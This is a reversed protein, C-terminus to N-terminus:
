DNILVEAEVANAQSLKAETGATMIDYYEHQRMCNMMKVTDSFCKSLDEDDKMGQICEDWKLFETKCPGGKMFRCVPCESTDKASNSGDSLSPTQANRSIELEPGEKSRVSMNKETTATSGSDAITKIQHRDFNCNGEADVYTSSCIYGDIVLQDSPAFGTFQYDQAPHRVDVVREDALRGKLMNAFSNTRGTVIKNTCLRTPLDMAKRDYIIGVRTHNDKDADLLLSLPLSPEFDEDRIEGIITSVRGVGAVFNEGETTKVIGKLRFAAREGFLPEFVEVDAPSASSRISIFEGTYNMGQKKLHKELQGRSQPSLYLAVVDPPRSADAVATRERGRTSRTVVAASALLSLPRAIKSSLHM